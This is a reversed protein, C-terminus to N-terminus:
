LRRFPGTTEVVVPYGGVKKPVSRGATADSVYVKLCPKGGREGIATGSVGERGLVREDLERRAAKLDDGM